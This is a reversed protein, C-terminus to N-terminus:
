LYMDRGGVMREREGERAERGSERERKERESQLECAAKLQGPNEGGGALVRGVGGGGGEGM